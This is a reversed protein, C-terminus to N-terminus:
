PHVSASPIADDAGVRCVSPAPRIGPLVSDGSVATMPRCLCPSSWRPEAPPGDRPTASRESQAFLWSASTRVEGSRFPTACTSHHASRNTRSTTSRGHPVSRGLRCPVSDRVPAPKGSLSSQPPSRPDDISGASSIESQRVFSESRPSDSPSGPHRRRHTRSTLAPVLAVTRISIVQPLTSRTGVGDAGRETGPDLPTGASWKVTHHASNSAYPHSSKRHQCRNMRSTNVGDVPEKDNPNSSAEVTETAPM